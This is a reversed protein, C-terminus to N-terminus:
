SRCCDDAVVSVSKLASLLGDVPDGRNRWDALVAASGSKLKDIAQPATVELIAQGLESSSGPTFLKGNVGDRVLEAAAGVVSSSIIALGAAAAENIVLAWPEYDSPLVLVDSTRYIASVVAQDDVFGAWIFRGSLAPPIMAALQERYPGNGVIVLDWEPRDNAVAIFAAFLLDVRKVAVLRGSYVIRRRNPNLAFRQRVDAVAKYPLNQILGYDPEYPFYFIRDPKAGYKLFYAKGLSGCSFIGGCSKVIRSVIQKKVFGKLGGRTDGHINSDGFMFCPVRNRRCWRIIRMRGIDNYGMMLVFKIDNEKLWAIIKGGRKWERPIRSPKDQDECSEGKGFLM